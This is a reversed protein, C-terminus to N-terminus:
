KTGDDAEHVHNMKNICKHLENKLEANEQILAGIDEKLSDNTKRMSKVEDLSNKTTSAVRKISIVVTCIMTIISVVAPGYTLIAQTIADLEQM